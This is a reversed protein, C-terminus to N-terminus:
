ALLHHVETLGKGADDHNNHGYIEWPVSTLALGAGCWLWDSIV